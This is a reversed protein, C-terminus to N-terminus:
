NFMEHLGQVLHVGLLTRVRSLAVYAMGDAFIDDSLDIVACNLFSRPM